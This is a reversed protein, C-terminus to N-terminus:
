KRIHADLVEDLITQLRMDYSYGSRLCRERGAAAIRERLKTERLYYGIQEKLEDLGSFYAAEMGERFHELHEHTREALMFGGCAPIEISRQTISDEATRSLFALNIKAGNIAKAYELGLVAGKFADRVANKRARHWGFGRIAVDFGSEILENLWLERLPEWRGIFSVDCEYTERDAASLHIAKHVEPDFANGSLLVRRCGAEKLRAVNATKTTVVVDYLPLSSALHRSRNQRIFYNDPSYHVLCEVAQRAMQTTEASIFLGKDVWMIDPGYAGIAMELEENYAALMPGIRLHWQFQKSVSSYQGCYPLYDIGIVEHGLRELTRRRLDCTHGATLPGTYLIKM